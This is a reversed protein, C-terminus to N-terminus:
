NIFFFFLERIVADSHKSCMQNFLLVFGGGGINCRCCDSGFGDCWIAGIIGGNGLEITTDFSGVGGGIGSRGATAINFADNDWTFIWKHCIERLM